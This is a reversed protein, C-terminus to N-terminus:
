YFAIRAKDTDQAGHADRQQVQHPEAQHAAENGERRSVRRGPEPRQPPRADLGTELRQPSRTDLARRWASREARREGRHATRTESPSVNMDAKRGDVKAENYKHM